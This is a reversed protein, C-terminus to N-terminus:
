YVHLESMRKYVPGIPRLLLLPPCPVARREARGVSM